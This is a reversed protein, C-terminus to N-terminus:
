AGEKLEVLEVGRVNLVRQIYRVDDPLKGHKRYHSLEWEAKRAKTECELKGLFYILDHIDTNAPM